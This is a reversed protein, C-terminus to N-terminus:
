QTGTVLHTKVSLPAYSSVKMQCTDLDIIGWKYYSSVVILTKVQARKTSM